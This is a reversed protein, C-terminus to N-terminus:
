ASTLVYMWRTCIKKRTVILTYNQLHRMVFSSLAYRAIGTGAVVEVPAPGLPCPISADAFPVSTSLSPVPSWITPAPIPDFAGVTEVIAPAPVTWHTSSTDRTIGSKLDLGTTWTFAASALHRVHNAVQEDIIIVVGSSFIL